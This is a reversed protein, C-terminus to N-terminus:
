LDALIEQTNKLAEAFYDRFSPKIELILDGEYAPLRAFVEQYPIRGWGPPLHLDSEGFAICNGSDYFGRDLHGFNDNAHLHKVWPAANEVAELYDFDLTNAAIYLHAVDLTMSVSPHDIAELQRIISEVRLGAYYKGLEPPLRGFREIM